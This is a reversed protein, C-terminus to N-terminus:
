ESQQRQSPIQCVRWCFEFEVVRWVCHGGCAWSSENYDDLSVKEYHGHHVPPNSNCFPNAKALFLLLAHLNCFVRSLCHRGLLLGSHLVCNSNWLWLPLTPNGHDLHIAPKLVRRSASVKTFMRALIFYLASAVFSCGLIFAYLFITNSNFTFTNTNNYIGSGQFNYTTRYGNISFGSIM